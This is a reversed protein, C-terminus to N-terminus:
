QEDIRGTTALPACCRPWSRVHADENPWAVPLLDADAGHVLAMFM